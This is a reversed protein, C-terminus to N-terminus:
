NLLLHKNKNLFGSAIKIYIEGVDVRCHKKYHEWYKMQFLKESDTEVWEATMRKELEMVADLLEDDTNEVITLNQKSLDAIVNKSLTRCVRATESLTLYTSTNKNKLLKSIYLTCPYWMLAEGVVPSINTLIVTKRFIQSVCDLGTCTSICFQCTACFYVDMFDSRAQNTAYDIINPHDVSFEQQTFKGMRLVYYGQQALYLAVKKYTMVDANRHDHYSWDHEPYTQRLYAPDRVILCVIKADQPIGLQQMIKKAKKIETKTFSLHPTKNKKLFGADDIAGSCPEYKKKISDNYYHAGLFLSLLQDVQSALISLPFIPICRKWMKYLQNNCPKSMNYFFTKKKNNNELDIACLMLETNLAYHGIRFAQLGILRVRFFPSILILLIACSFSIFYCFRRLIALM